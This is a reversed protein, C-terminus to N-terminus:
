QNKQELYTRKKTVENYRSETKLEKKQKQNKEKKHEEKEKGKMNLEGNCRSINSNIKDSETHLM